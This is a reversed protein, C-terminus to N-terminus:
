HFAMGNATAWLRRLYCFLGTWCSCRAYVPFHVNAGSLRTGCWRRANSSFTKTPFLYVVVGEDDFNWGLQKNIEFNKDGCNRKKGFWHFLEWYQAIAKFVSVMHVLHFADNLEGVFFVHNNDFVAFYLLYM